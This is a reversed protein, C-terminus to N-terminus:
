VNESFKKLALPFYDGAKKRYSNMNMLNGITGAM